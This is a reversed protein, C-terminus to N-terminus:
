KTVVYVDQGLDAMMLIKAEEKTYPLMVDFDCFILVEGNELLVYAVSVPVLNEKYPAKIAGQTHLTKIVKHKPVNQNPSCLSVLVGKNKSVEYSFVNEM